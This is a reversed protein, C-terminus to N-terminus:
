RARAVVMINEGLGTDLILRTAVRRALQKLPSRKRPSPARRSTSAQSCESLTLPDPALSGPLPWSPDRLMEDIGFGWTVSREVAFGHRALLDALTRPTFYSLHIPFARYREDFRAYRSLVPLSARARLSGVNPCEILACGGPALLARVVGLTLQHDTVHELVHHLVIADFGERPLAGLDGTATLGQRRCSAIAAPGVDYGTAHWGARAAGRLLVGAGCGFDLLRRGATHEAAIALVRDTRSDLTDTALEDHPAYDPGGYFEGLLAESPRPNVFAFACRACSTVGFAGRHKGFVGEAIWLYPTTRRRLETSECVPCAALQVAISGTVAANM